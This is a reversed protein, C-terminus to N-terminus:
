HFCVDYPTIYGLYINDFSVGACFLYQRSFVSMMHHSINWIFSKKEFSVGACFLYQRSFVSMMHHSIDWIFSKKLHCELVLYQRSFVSMMHHSIDWIFIKFHCELVFYINDVSASVM